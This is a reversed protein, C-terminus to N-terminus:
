QTITILRVVSVRGSFRGLLFAVCAAAVAILIYTYPLKGVGVKNLFLASSASKLIYSTLILLFYNFFLPIMQALEHRRVDFLSRFYQKV